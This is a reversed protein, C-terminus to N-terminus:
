DSSIPEPKRNDRGLGSHRRFEIRVRMTEDPGIWGVSKAFPDLGGIEDFIKPPALASWRADVIDIIRVDDAQVTRVASGKDEHGKAELPRRQDDAPDPRRPSHFPVPREM